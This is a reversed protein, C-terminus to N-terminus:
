DKPNITGLEEVVQLMRQMQRELSEVARAREGPREERKLLEVSLHMGNLMNRLEHALMGLFKRTREDSAQHRKAGTLDTVLWMSQGNALRAVSLLVHVPDGRACVLRLEAQTAGGNRAGTMRAFAPRDPPMVYSDFATGLLREAPVGLLRVLRANAYVVRGRPSLTFAGQHIRDALLQYPDAAKNLTIVTEGMVFADVEGRRIAELTERAETAQQEESLDAVVLTSYSEWTSAITIRARVQAGGPRAIRVAIGNEPPHPSTLLAALAARDDPHLYDALASRYLEGLAAGVVGAFRRNAFLIEGHDDVTVTGHNMEEILQRYRSYAGALLLVKKDQEDPGVVFADVEGQSIARSVDEAQELRERLAAIERELDQAQRTDQGQEASV